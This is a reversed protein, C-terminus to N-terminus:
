DGRGYAERYIALADGYNVPRPNNNLLRKIELVALAMEPLDKEEVGGEKLTGPIGLESLFGEFAEATAIGSETDNLGELCLGFARGIERTREPSSIMNFRFVPSFMLANSLGHAMHYRAGLPYSFAHVAGVGASAFAMGALLSGESMLSRSTIDSGNTYCGKLSQAILSIAKLALADSIANANASHYAEVAHILADVGTYATIVPPLSITLEPDVVALHPFIFPSAVGIKLEAKEDTMIAVGTTESGTGATTPIAVMPIGERRILDVGLFDRVQGDSYFLAAAVKAVDLSSGGGIGVIVDSGLGRAMSLCKDGVEIRPEAETQDFVDVKIGAGTLQNIIRGAIGARIVGPDTVVLVKGGGLRRVEGAAESAVGPGFVIRRAIQFNAM